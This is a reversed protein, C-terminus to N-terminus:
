LVMDKYKNRVPMRRHTVRKSKKLHTKYKYRRYRSKRSPASRHCSAARTSSKPRGGLLTYHQIAIKYQNVLTDYRSNKVLPLDEVLIIINEILHKYDIKNCGDNQKEIARKLFFMMLLKFHELISSARKESVPEYKLGDSRFDYTVQERFSQLGPIFVSQYFENVYANDDTIYTQNPRIVSYVEFMARLSDLFWSGWNRRCITPVQETRNFYVYQPKTNKELFLAINQLADNVTLAKNVSM